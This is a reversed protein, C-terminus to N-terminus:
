WIMRMSGTRPSHHPQLSSDCSKKMIYIQLVSKNLQVNTRSGSRYLKMNRRVTGTIYNSLKHLNCVISVCMFYNDVFVHYGKKLYGGIELLNKQLPTGWAM